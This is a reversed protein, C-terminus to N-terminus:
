ILTGYFLINSTDSLNNRVAAAVAVVFYAIWYSYWYPHTHNEYNRWGSCAVWGVRCYPYCPDPSCAVEGSTNRYASPGAPSPGPGTCTSSAQGSYLDFNRSAWTNNSPFPAWVGPYRDWPCVRGNQLGNRAATEM